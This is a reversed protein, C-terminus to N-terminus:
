HPQLGTRGIATVIADALRKRGGLELKGALSGDLEGLWALPNGSVWADAEGELNPAVSIPEGDEVSVLVGAFTPGTGDHVEVALRCRGALNAPLDLLPTVLLFTAEVDLRRLDPTSKAAFRREWGVAAALPVVARRLWPTVSYPNARGASPRQAILGAERMATLRRELSPYSVRPILTDLETLSLSRSALARVINSGWGEAFAKIASKAPTTGLEKPGSPSANLWAQLTETVVLLSRGATTIEYDVSTPFEDRPHREVAGLETLTRLYLRATSRPPFGLRRMLDQLSQPQDALGRLAELNFWSSLLTLVTGGARLPRRSSPPRASGDM